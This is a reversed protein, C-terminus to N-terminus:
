RRKLMPKEQFPNTEWKMAISPTALMVGIRTHKDFPSPDKVASPFFPRELL